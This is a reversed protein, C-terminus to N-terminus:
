HVIKRLPFEKSYSKVEIDKNFDPCRPNLCRQYTTSIAVAKGGGAPRLYERDSWRVYRISQCHPCRRSFRKCLRYIAWYLLAILAISVLVAHNALISVVEM